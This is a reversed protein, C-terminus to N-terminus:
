PPFDKSNALLFVISILLLSPITLHCDFCGVGPHFWHGQGASCHHEAGELAPPLNMHNQEMNGWSPRWNSLLYWSPVKSMM